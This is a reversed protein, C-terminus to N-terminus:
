QVFLPMRTCYYCVFCAKGLLEGVYGPCITTSGRERARAGNLWHAFSQPIDGPHDPLLTRLSSIFWSNRANPIPFQLNATYRSEPM